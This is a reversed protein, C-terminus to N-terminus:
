RRGHGPRPEPSASPSTATATPRSGRPHRPRAPPARRVRPADVSEGLLPLACRSALAETMASRVEEPASVRPPGPGAPM